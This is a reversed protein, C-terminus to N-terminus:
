EELDGPSYRTRKARGVPATTVRTRRKVPSQSGQPQRTAGAASGTTRRARLSSLGAHVAAGAVGALLYGFVEAM